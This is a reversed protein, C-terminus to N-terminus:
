RVADRVARIYYLHSDVFGLFSAAVLVFCLVVDPNSYTTLISISAERGAQDYLYDAYLVFSAYVLSLNSAVALVLPRRLAIGGLAMAILPFAVLGLQAYRITGFVSLAYSSKQFAHFWELNAQWLLESSPWRALAAVALEGSCVAVFITAPGIIQFKALRKM